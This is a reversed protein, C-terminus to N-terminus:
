NSVNYGRRIAHARMRSDANEGEHYNIIGASDIYIKDTLNEDAVLKKMVAEASPSRCINGLCVFLVSYKNFTSKNNEM